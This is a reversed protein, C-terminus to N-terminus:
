TTDKFSFVSRLLFFGFTHPIGLPQSCAILQIVSWDAKWLFGLFSGASHSIGLSTEFCELYVTVKAMQWSWLVCFSSRESSTDLFFKGSSRM